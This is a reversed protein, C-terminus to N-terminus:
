CFLHSTFELISIPNSVNWNVRYTYRITQNQGENLTLPATDKGAECTPDGVQPGGISKQSRQDASRVHLERSM